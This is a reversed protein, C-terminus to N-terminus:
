KISAMQHGHEENFGDIVAVKVGKGKYGKSWYSQRGVADYRGIIIANDSYM